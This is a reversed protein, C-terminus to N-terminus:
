QFKYNQFDPVLFILYQLLEKLLRIRPWDSKHIELPLKTLEGAQSGLKQQFVQMKM